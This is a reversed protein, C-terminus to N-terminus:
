HWHRLRSWASLQGDVFTQLSASHAQTQGRIGLQRLSSTKLKAVHVYTWNKYM